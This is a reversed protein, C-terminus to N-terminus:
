ATFYYDYSYYGCCFLWQDAEGSQIGAYEADGKGDDFLHMVSSYEQLFTRIEENVPHRGNKNKCYNYYEDIFDYYAKNGLNLSIYKPDGELHRSNDYFGRQKAGKVAESDATLVAYLIPGFGGTLPDILHYFGDGEDGEDFVGNDNTDVWNLAVKSSDLPVNTEGLGKKAKYIYHWTGEIGTIPTDDFPGRAEVETPPLTTPEGEYKITFDVTVPYEGVSDAHVGFTWVNGGYNEPVELTFRFNKTYSGSTGGDNYADILDTNVYNGANSSIFYNMIPNVENKTVDVWSELSYIGIATPQYQYYIVHSKSNLVARYTSNSQQIKIPSYVSSGRNSDTSTIQLLEIEVDRNDNDAFYANPNYTYNEPLQSLTVRYDGDLGSKQAIGLSNFMASHVEGNGSWQATIKMDPSLSFRVGNFMLTVSFTFGEEGTNGDDPPTDPKVKDGGDGGSVIPPTYTGCGAFVVVLLITLLLILIKKM